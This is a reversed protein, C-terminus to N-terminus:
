GLHRRTPVQAWYGRAFDAGSEYRERYAPESREETRIRWERWLGCPDVPRCCVSGGVRIGVARRRGNRSENHVLGRNPAQESVLRPLSDFGSRREPVLAHANGDKWKSAICAHMKRGRLPLNFFDFIRTAMTPTPLQAEERTCPM